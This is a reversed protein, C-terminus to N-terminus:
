IFVERSLQSKLVCIHLKLCLLRSPFILVNLAHLSYVDTLSVTFYNKKNKKTKICLHHVLGTQNRYIAICKGIAKTHNFPLRILFFLQPCTSSYTIWIVALNYFSAPSRRREEVWDLKYYESPGEASQIMNEEIIEPVNGSDISRQYLTLDGYLPQKAQTRPGFIVM